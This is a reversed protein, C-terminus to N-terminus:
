YDVEYGPSDINEYRIQKASKYTGDPYYLGEQEVM